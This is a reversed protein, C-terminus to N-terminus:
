NIPGKLTKENNKKYAIISPRYYDNTVKITEDFTTDYLDLIEACKSLPTKSDYMLCKNLLLVDDLSDEKNLLYSSYVTGLFYRFSIDPVFGKKIDMNVKKLLSIYDNKSMSPFDLQEKYSDIFQYSDEDIYGLESKLNLLISQRYLKICTQDYNFYRFLRVNTIDDKSYGKSLIFDLYKNEMYISILESFVPAAQYAGINLYHFFEHILRVGDVINGGFTVNYFKYGNEIYTLNRIKEDEPETSDSFNFFGAAFSEDFCSSYEDGLDDLFERVLELTEVGSVYQKYQFHIIDTGLIKFIDLRKVTKKLFEINSKLTYLYFSYKKKDLYEDLKQNFELYDM